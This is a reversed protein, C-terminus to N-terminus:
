GDQGEKANGRVVLASNFGGYGRALVLATEVRQHRPADLVLDLGYDDPVDTTHPTPPIVSDRISLLATLVDVPGGGAGLRGFGAKPATVPVGRRGFVDEIAAAEIRDLEPVGASDAFVVDVTSVGADAMALEIARRLTSPRGSGPRPDFTAAHGAIEGHSPADRRRASSGAELVLVAGGEGPVYGNVARDFPRYARRPDAARSLRGHASQALFGWPDFASDFGGTVMLRAGERIRRRALSIADLGGAQEAVLAGCPGRMGHRISVQGTNVAYFWAFSEYVSVEAPGKTWLKRFERHTFASGGQANAFVVGQDFSDLDGDAVDAGALATAATVLALRTVRDSQPLLRKPLHAEADFDRIQGALRVPYGSADFGTVPGISTRGALVAAWHDEVSLGSPAAVGMGVVQASESM